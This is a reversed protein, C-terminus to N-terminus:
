KLTTGPYFTKLIKKYGMGEKAMENACNQSMGLGHGFGGGRLQVKGKEVSKVYFVASPLLLSGSSISHDQLTVKAGCAALCYRITYENKLRVKGKKYHIVLELIGGGDSRKTVELSKPKGLHKLGSIKKGKKNYIAVTKPAQNKRQVIAWSLQDDYKKLNLSAKWRFYRCSKEYFSAKNQKMFKQFTEEKSLDSKKLSGKKLIKNKLYGFSSPQLGWLDYKQSVGASTSYYYTTVIENKYWLVKNKTTNVAERTSKADNSKNYVQYATSDDLDAYYYKLAHEGMLQKYAYSRACIAQAKLAQEHYGSPMESPVVGYLYQKIPLKNLVVYGKPFRYVMLSGRYGKSMKKGSSDCFYIRGGEKLPKLTVCDSKKPKKSGAGLTFNVVKGSKLTTTKESTIKKYKGSIVVRFGARFNDTGNKLLVTIQSDDNYKLNAAQATAGDSQLFAQKQQEKEYAHYSVLMVFFLLSVSGIIGLRKLKRNKM